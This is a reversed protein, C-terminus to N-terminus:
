ETQVEVMVATRAIWEGVNSQRQVQERLERQEARMELQNQKLRLLDRRLASNQGRLERVEGQM